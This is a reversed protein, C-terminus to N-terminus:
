LTVVLWFALQDLLPKLALVCAGPDLTDIVGHVGARAINDLTILVHAVELPVVVTSVTLSM